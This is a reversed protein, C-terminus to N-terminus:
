LKVTGLKEFAKRFKMENAGFYTVVSGKTVGELVTGDPLLYNTRPCLFCQPQKLLPQFWKESTCAYTINCSETVRKSTIEELLKSIWAHNVGGRGFPHNMWVRGFWPSTLGNSEKTYIMGAMIIDNAEQCSAPDLDIGGMTERAAAVIEPPTFYEVNGSTQQILQAPNM